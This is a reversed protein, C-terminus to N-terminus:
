LTVMVHDFIKPLGDPPSGDVTYFKWDEKVNSIGRPEGLYGDWTSVFVKVGRWDGVSDFFRSSFTFTVTKAKGDASQAIDGIIPAGYADATSDEASFSRAGWGHLQFGLSYKFDGRACDLRPLASRAPRGPLEFFANFYVHDYGNPPNWDSSVRAMRLVLRLDRGSTLIEIGKVSIQGDYSPEAPPKLNSSKVGAAKALRRYPNEVTLPWDASLALDGAKTKALLGIRHRGNDLRASDFEFTGASPEEIRIMRDFSADCIVHLQDIAAASDLAYRLAIRGRRSVPPKLTVAPKGARSPTAARDRKLVLFSDPPMVLVDSLSELSSDSALQTTFRRRRRDLRFAMRDPATNFVVLYSERGKTMSYALVGCQACSAEIRCRGRRLAPREDRFRVLKALFRARESNPDFDEERFM